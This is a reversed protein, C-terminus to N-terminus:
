VGYAKRLYTREAETLKKNNVWVNLTVRLYDDYTKYYRRYVSTSFEGKSMVENKFKQVNTNESTVKESIKSSDASSSSSSAKISDNYADEALKYSDELASLNKYYRDWEDNYREEEMQALSNYYSYLEDDRSNEAAYRKYAAEYLEPIIDSVKSLSNNYSQNAATIAYSNLAGGSLASASALTDRMAREGERQYVSKYHNYLPDSYPSYSFDERNSIKQLMEDRAKAFSSTFSEPKAALAAEYEQKKKQVESYSYAM